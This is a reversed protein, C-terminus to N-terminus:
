AGHIWVLDRCHPCAFVIRLDEVFSVYGGQARRGCAPCFAGAEEVTAITLARGTAPDPLSGPRTAQRALRDDTPGWTFLGHFPDAPRLEAM